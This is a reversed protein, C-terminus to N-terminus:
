KIKQLQKMSLYGNGYNPAVHFHGDDRGFCDFKLVEKGYAQLILAPGRGVQLVKWYVVLELNPQIPIIEVDKRVQDILKLKILNKKLIRKLIM